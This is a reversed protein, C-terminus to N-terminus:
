PIVLTVSGATSCTITVQNDAVSVSIGNFAVLETVNGQYDIIGVGQKSSAKRAYFILMGSVLPVVWPTSGVAQSLVKGRPAMAVQWYTTNTPATNAPVAQKAIYSGGNYEVTDLVEYATSSDWDGRMRMGVKGLDTAM